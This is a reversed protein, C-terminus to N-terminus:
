TFLTEQNAAPKLDERVGLQFWEPVYFTIDLFTVGCFGERRQYENTPVAEFGYDHYHDIAEFIRERRATKVPNIVPM